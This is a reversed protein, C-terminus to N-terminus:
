SLLTAPPRLLRDPHVPLLVPVALTMVFSPVAFSDIVTLSSVLATSSSLCNPDCHHGSQDSCCHAKAPAPADHHCPMETAMQKQESTLPTSTMAWASNLGEVLVMVILLLARISKPMADPYVL